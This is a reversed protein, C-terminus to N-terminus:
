PSSGPKPPCQTTQHEFLRTHRVLAGYATSAALFFGPYGDLFGRKLFYGRFFRWASRFVVAPANWQSGDALQRHLYLDAYYPIKQVYGNVTPNSFHLLDSHLTTIPGDPQVFTHEPSGSWKGAGRKFLRLVHDPYWDGHRIWRGLFWTLRPFRAGVFREHDGQFFKHLDRRLEPSVVEDADLALIWPQTARTLVLNKQERFGQWPHRFVSGGRAQIIAETRDRVEENLVVVIERTWGAISDLCRGIRAEEPGSVLCVSVPLPEMPDATDSRSPGGLAPRLPYRTLDPADPPKWLQQLFSNSIIDFIRYFINFFILYLNM